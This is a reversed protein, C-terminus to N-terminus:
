AIGGESQDQAPDVQAILEDIQETIPDSTGFLEDYTHRNDEYDAMQAARVDPEIVTKKALQQASLLDGVELYYAVAKQASIAASGPDIDQLVESRLQHFIAKCQSNTQCQLTINLGNDVAELALETDGMAMYAKAAYVYRSGDILTWSDNEDSVDNLINIVQDPEDIGLLSDLYYPLMRHREGVLRKSEQSHMYALAFFESALEYNGAILALRGLGFNARLKTRWHKPFMESLTIAQELYKRADTSYPNNCIENIGLDVLIKAQQKTDNREYYAKRARKLLSSAIEFNGAMAHVEGLLAEAELECNPCSCTQALALAKEASDMAEALCNMAMYAFTINIYANYIAHPNEAAKANDISRLYAHVADRYKGLSVLSDGEERSSMAAGRFDEISDFILESSKYHAAAKEFDNLHWYVDGIYNETRATDTDAGCSLSLDASEKYSAIAPEYERLAKQCHGMMRKAIAAERAYMTPKYLDFAQEAFTLANRYEGEHTRRHHLSFLIQGKEFTNVDNYHDWLEDDSMESYDDSLAAEM